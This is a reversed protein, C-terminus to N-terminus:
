SESSWKTAESQASTQGASYHGGSRLRGVGPLDVAGIADLAVVATRHQWRSRWGRTTRGVLRASLTPGGPRSKSQNKPEIPRDCRCPLRGSVAVFVGGRACVRRNLSPRTGARSRIENAPGDDPRRRPPRRTAACSTSPHWPSAPSASGCGAVVAPVDSGHDLVENTLLAAGVGGVLSNVAAVMGATTFLVTSRRPKTGLMSLAEAAEEDSGQWVPFYYPAEPTLQRYFGRIHAIAEQARYSGVSTDVLRVVTFWGLVFLAPLVAAVLTPFADTEATFGM